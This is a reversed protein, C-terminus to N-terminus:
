ASSGPVTRRKSRKERKITVATARGALKKMWAPLESAGGDSENMAVRAHALAKFQSQITPYSRLVEDLVTKRLVYLVVPTSAVVTATRVTDLFLAIEGFFSGRSLAVDAGSPLHVAVQGSAIFYMERGLDGAEVITQGPEAKHKDMRSMMDDLFRANRGLDFEAAESGALPSYVIKKRRGKPPPKMGRPEHELSMSYCKNEDWKPAAHALYTQITPVPHFVYASGSRFSLLDAVVEYTMRHKAMNVLHAGDVKQVFSENGDDIFTLDQLSVGLYPILPPAASKLKDRYARYNHTMSMVDKLDLFLADYEPPLLEWTYKLRTLAAGELASLIAMLANYNQLALCNNAVDLMICIMRARYKPGDCKLVETRAWAVTDNFRKIMALVYPARMEAGKRAWAQGLFENPKIREFVAYDLLTLQRVVELPHLQAMTHLPKSTLLLSPPAQTSEEFTISSASALESAAASSAGLTDDDDSEDSDSDGLSLARLQDMVAAADEDLRSKWKERLKTAAAAVSAALPESADVRDLFTTVAAALTGHSPFEYPALSVWEALFALTKLQMPAQEKAVFADVTAQATSAPLSFFRMELYTLLRLAPLYLSHTLIFIKRLSRDGVGPQTMKRILFDIAMAEISLDVTSDDYKDHWYPLLRPVDLGKRLRVVTSSVGTDPRVTRIMTGAASLKRRELIGRWWAQILVAAAEMRSAEVQDQVNTVVMESDVSQLYELGGSHAQLDSLLVVAEDTGAPAGEGGPTDPAKLDIYTVADTSVIARISPPLEHATDAVVDWAELSGALSAGTQFVGVIETLASSTSRLLRCYRLRQALVIRRLADKEFRQANQIADSVSNLSATLEDAGAKNKMAKVGLKSSTKEAKKVAKAHKKAEEEYESSLAESETKYETVIARAPEVVGHHLAATWAEIGSQVLNWADLVEHLALGVDSTGLTADASEATLTSFTAMFKSGQETAKRLLSASWALDSFIGM